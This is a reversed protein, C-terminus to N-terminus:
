DIENCREGGSFTQAAGIERPRSGLEADNGALERARRVDCARAEFRPSEPRQLLVAEGGIRNTRGVWEHRLMLDLFREIEFMLEAGVQGNAGCGSTLSMWSSASTRGPGCNGRARGARM